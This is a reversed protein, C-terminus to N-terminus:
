RHVSPNARAVTADHPGRVLWDTPADTIAAAVRRALAVQGDGLLELAGREVEGARAPAAALLGEFGRAVLDARGKSRAWAILAEWAAPRERYALTLAVARDGSQATSGARVEAHVLLAAVDVNAPDEHAAKQADPLAAAANGRDLMCRARAALAGAATSDAALAKAFAEDALADKPDRRCRAAGLRTWIAPDEDDEKSAAVYATIAADLEGGDEALVGRLFWAYAEPSVYHGAVIHGDYVRVVKSEGGCAAASAALAVFIAARRM